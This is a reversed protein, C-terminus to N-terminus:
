TGSFAQERGSPPYPRAPPGHCRVRAKRPPDSTGRGGDEVHPPTLGVAPEERVPLMGPRDKGVAPRHRVLHADAARFTAIAETPVGAMILDHIKPIRTFRSKVAV